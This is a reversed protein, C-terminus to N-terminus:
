HMSRVIEPGVPAAADRIGLGTNAVAQADFESIHLQTARALTDLLIEDLKGLM